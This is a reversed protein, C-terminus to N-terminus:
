ENADCASFKSLCARVMRAIRRWIEAASQRHWHKLLGNATAYGRQRAVTTAAHKLMKTANPIRRGYATFVMPMYVIGQSELDALHPEYYDLKDQRMSEAADDRANSAHPARVGIDVSVTLTPHAARTLIDAPRLTPASPCLGPVETATGADAM